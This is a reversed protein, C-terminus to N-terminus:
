VFNILQRIFMDTIEDKYKSYNMLKLTQTDMTFNSKNQRKINIIVIFFKCFDVNLDGIIDISKCKLEVDLIRDYFYRPVGCIM